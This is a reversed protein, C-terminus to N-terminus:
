RTVQKALILEGELLRRVVGGPSEIELDYVGRTFDLAGTTTPDAAFKFKGNSPDSLTIEGGATDWDLVTASSEVSLRGQMRVTYGTIDVPNGDDDVYQYEDDFTSGQEITLNYYAARSM